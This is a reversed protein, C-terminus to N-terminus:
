QCPVKTDTQCSSIGTSQDVVKGEDEKCLGNMVETLDDTETVYAKSDKKDSRFIFPTYFSHDEKPSRAMLDPDRRINLSARNVQEIDKQKPLNPFGGVVEEKTTKGLKINKLADETMVKSMFDLTERTDGYKAIHLIEASVFESYGNNGRSRSLFNLPHYKIEIEENLIKERVLDKTKEEVKVCDMCYPDFYWDYKRNNKDTFDEKVGDATLVFSGDPFTEKKPESDFPWAVWVIFCVLGILVLTSVLRKVIDGIDVKNM